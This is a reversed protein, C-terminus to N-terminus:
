IITAEKAPTYVTAEGIIFLMTGTIVIKKLFIESEM